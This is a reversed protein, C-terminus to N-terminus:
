NEKDINLSNWLRPVYSMLSNNMYNYTNYPQIFYFTSRTNM